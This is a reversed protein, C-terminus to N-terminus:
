WYACDPGRRDRGPLSPRVKILRRSQSEERYTAPGPTVFKEPCSCAEPTRSLSEQCVPLGLRDVRSMKDYDTFFVGAPGHGLQARHGVAYAIYTQCQTHQHPIAVGGPPPCYSWCGALAPLYNYTECYILMMCAGHRSALSGSKTHREAPHRPLEGNWTARLHTHQGITCTSRM